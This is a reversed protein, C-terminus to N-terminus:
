ILLSIRWQRAEKRAGQQRVSGASLVDVAPLWRGDVERVARHAVAAVPRRRAAPLLCSPAASEAFATMSQPAHAKVDDYSALNFAKSM